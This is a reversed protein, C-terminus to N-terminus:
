SVSTTVHNVTTVILEQPNKRPAVHRQSARLTNVHDQSGCIRAYHKPGWTPIAEDAGVRVDYTWAQPTDVRVGGFADTQLRRSSHGPSSGLSPALSLTRLFSFSAMRLKSTEATKKQKDSSATHFRESTSVHHDGIGDLSRRSPHWNFSQDRTSRRTRSHSVM